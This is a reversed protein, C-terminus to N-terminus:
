NRLENAPQLDALNMMLLLVLTANNSPLTFLMVLVMTHMYTSLVLLLTINLKFLALLLVFPYRRDLTSQFILSKVSSLLMLDLSTATLVVM